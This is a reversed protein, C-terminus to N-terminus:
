PMVLQQRERINSGKLGNAKKIKYVYSRVNEGEPLHQQAITWLTDGSIVDVLQVAQASAEHVSATDISAASALSVMGNGNDSASAHLLAGSLMAISIMAILIVRKLIRNHGTRKM